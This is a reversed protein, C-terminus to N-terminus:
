PEDGNTIKSFAYLSFHDLTISYQNTIENIVFSTVLEWEGINEDYYYIAVTDGMFFYTMLLSLTMVVPEGFILNPGFQITLEPDEAFRWYSLTMELNAPEDLAGAPVYLRAFGPMRLTTDDGPYCMKEVHRTIYQPNHASAPVGITVAALFMFGLTVATIQKSYQKRMKCRRPLIIKDEVRDKLLGWALSFEVPIVM